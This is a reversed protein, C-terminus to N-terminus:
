FKCPYLNDERVNGQSKWFIEFKGSKGQDELLNGSKGQSGQGLPFGERTPPFELTLILSTLFNWVNKMLVGSIEVEKKPAVWLEIQERFFTIHGKIEVEVGEKLFTMFIKQRNLKWSMCISEEEFAVLFHALYGTDYAAM